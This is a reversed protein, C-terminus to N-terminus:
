SYHFWCLLYLGTPVLNFDLIALFHFPRNNFANQVVGCFEVGEAFFNILLINVLRNLIVSAEFYFYIFVHRPIIAYLILLNLLDVPNVLRIPAGYTDLRTLSVNYHLPLALVGGYEWIFWFEHASNLIINITGIQFISIIQILIKYAILVRSAIALWAGDLVHVWEVILAGLLEISQGM